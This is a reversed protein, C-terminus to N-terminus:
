KLLNLSYNLVFSISVKRFKEGRKFCGLVLFATLCYVVWSFCFLVFCFLFFLSLYGFPCLGWLLLLIHEHYWSLYEKCGVKTTMTMIQVKEKWNTQVASTHLDHSHGSCEHLVWSPASPYKGSSSCGSSVGHQLLDKGSSSYDTASCRCLLCAHCFTSSLFHNHVTM